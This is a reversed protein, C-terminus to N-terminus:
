ENISNEKDNENNTKPTSFREDYVPTQGNVKYKEDFDFDDKRKFMEENGISTKIALDTYYDQVSYEGANLLPVDKRFIRALFQNINRGVKKFINEKVIPLPRTIDISDYIKSDQIPELPGTINLENHFVSGVYNIINENDWQKGNDFDERIVYSAYETNDIIDNEPELNRCLQIGYNQEYWESYQGIEGRMAFGMAQEFEKHTSFANSNKLLTDINGVRESLDQRFGYTENYIEGAKEYSLIGYNIDKSIADNMIREIKNKRYIIDSLFTKSDSIEAVDEIQKTLEWISYTYMGTLSSKMVDENYKNYEYSEKYNTNYIMDLNSEIAKFTGLSRQKNPLDKVLSNLLNRRGRSGERLLEKETKGFTAALINSVFTIDTYGDTESRYQEIDQVTRPISCRNASTETFVENLASGGRSKLVYDYYTLGMYEKQKSETGHFVEHTITSFIMECVKEKPWGNSLMEKYFDQNICIERKAYDCHGMHRAKRFVEKPAFRINDIKSVFNNLDEELYERPLDLEYTRRLFVEELLREWNHGYSKKSLYQRILKLNEENYYNKYEM